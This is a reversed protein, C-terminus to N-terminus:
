RHRRSAKAGYHKRAQKECAARGHRHRNKHCAKLAQALLRARTLPRPKVAPAPPPPALNGPGTFLASPPAGFISPQPQPASRCAGASRCEELSPESPPACPSVSTCEHADYIDVANDRDQPTLRERTSFFADAGTSSADLFVSEGSAVGSSILGVCGGTVPNFTASASTCGGTGAPEYEYVDTNGNIDQPVLADGSNFFLRGTDFLSRSSAEFGAPKFLPSPVVSSGIPRAGSPNCSACVLRGAQADYLYVESDPVGTKADRNDYGTLPTQTSFAVWRGDASIRHDFGVGQPSAIFSTTWKGEQEHAVYLNQVGPKAGAALRGQALFYVRSGDQSVGLTAAVNVHEGFGPQGPGPKPTLDTLACKLPAPALECVYLGGSPESDKTLPENFAFFAKSADTSAGVWASLHSGKPVSGDEKFTLRLVEGGVLDRVYIDGIQGCPGGGCGGLIIRSDDAAVALIGPPLPAGEFPVSVLSLRQAPPRAASWEYLGGEPAKTTTLQVSSQIFLHSGDPTGGVFNAAGLQFQSGEIKLGSTVDEADLLPEYCSAPAAACTKNHRLYPTRETPVPSAEVVHEWEGLTNQHWGEPVSFTGESEAVALGLDESFFRYEHLPEPFIIVGEPQSHSLAIDVSSWEGPATRTSLVQVGNTPSGPPAGETPINTAFTFQGGGAAARGSSEIQAGRKDAPSVLEWARGDPLVLPGGAGQTTFTRDPGYFATLVGPKSVPLAENVAVLRYHYTTNAALGHAHQSVNVDVAGSGVSVPSFPVSTCASPEATCVGTGQTDYQFYYSTPSKAPAQLDHEETPADHPALTADFTASSSSVESVSESRLGPGPTTFRYTESAEGYNTGHENKAQLRYSYATDPELGTLSGHVSVPSGGNLGSASCPAEQGFAETLGWAFGCSAAGENLPNVSGTPNIGWSVVGTEPDSELVLNSPAETVVDPVVVDPGFVDVVGCNETRTQPCGRSVFVGLFVKHSEPDVALSAVRVGFSFRVEESQGKVGGPLGERPVGTIAGRFACEPGFEYVAGENTAAYIEGTTTGVTSDDLAVASVETLPGAPGVLECAFQYKGKKAGEEEPRLVKDGVVLDGNFGSVAIPGSLGTERTVYHEKGGAETEFIDVVGSGADVFVDGSAWDGGGAAHHDVAVGGVGAFPPNPAEAGTWLTQLSACELTGCPAAFVNVDSPSNFGGQGLYMETESAASGFAIGAARNQGPEPQPPLQSVFEYEGPKSVSPRWQDTRAREGAVGEGELHEAVYLDGSFVTMSNPEDLLGPAPVSGGPGSAPVETIVSEVSHSTRAEAFPAFLAPSLFLAALSSAVVRVSVSRM